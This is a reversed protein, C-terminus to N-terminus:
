KRLCEKILNQIEFKNMQYHSFASSHHEIAKNLQKFINRIDGGQESMRKFLSASRDIFDNILLNARALRLIEAHITGYFISKPINSDMHPMRNIKFPFKERKDFHSYTYHGAYVSINLDLFTAQDGENECKLELEKPYIEKYTREFNGDDNLCCLDDIYRMCGNYYYASKANSKINKM